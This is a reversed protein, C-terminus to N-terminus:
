HAMLPGGNFKPTRSLLGEPAGQIRAGLHQIWQQLLGQQIDEELCDHLSYPDGNPLLPVRQIGNYPEVHNLMSVRSIILLQDKNQM